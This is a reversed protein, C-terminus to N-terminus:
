QFKILNYFISKKVLKFLGNVNNKNIFVAAEKNSAILFLELFYSILLSCILSFLAFKEKRRFLAKSEFTELRKNTMFIM